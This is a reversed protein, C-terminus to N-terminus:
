GPREWTTRGQNIDNLAVHRGPGMLGDRWMGEAKLQAEIRTRMVAASWDARDPWGFVSSSLVGDFGIEALAAFIEAFPVEGEGMNLHQHVAVPAGLPNVIFRLPQRHNLTDALRVITLDAGAALVLDRATTTNTLFFTHPTSYLFKVRPSRMARIMELAVFGDEVFDGPHPDLAMDIGYRDLMPVVKEMSKWFAYDSRERKEPRGSFESSVQSLGLEGAIVLFREFYRIAAEHAEPDDPEAWRYVTWLNALSVGHRTMAAKLEAIRALGARPGEFLPVFDDRISLEISHFGHEAAHACIGDLGRERVMFPDIAIQM